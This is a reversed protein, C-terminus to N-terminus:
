AFQIAMSSHKGGKNRVVKKSHEFAFKPRCVNNESLSRSSEGIGRTQTRTIPFLNAHWPFRVSFSWTVTTFKHAVLLPCM